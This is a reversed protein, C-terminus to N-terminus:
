RRAKSREAVIDTQQHTFIVCNVILYGLMDCLNSCKWVNM